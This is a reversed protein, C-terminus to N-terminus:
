YDLNINGLGSYKRNKMNNIVKNVETDSVLNTSELEWEEEDGFEIRDETLLTSYFKYRTQM